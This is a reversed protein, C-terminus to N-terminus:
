SRCGWKMWAESYLSYIDEKYPVLLGHNRQFLSHRPLSWTLILPCTMMHMDWVALAECRGASAEQSGPLGGSSEDKNQGRGPLRPPCTSWAMMRSKFFFFFIERLNLEHEMGEQIEWISQIQEKDITRSERGAPEQKIEIRWSASSWGPQDQLVGQVGM